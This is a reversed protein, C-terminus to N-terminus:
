TNQYSNEIPEELNIFFILFILPKSNCKIEQFVYKWKLYAKFFM